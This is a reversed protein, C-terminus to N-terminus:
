SYLWYWLFDILWSIFLSRLYCDYWSLFLFELSKLFRGNSSFWKLLGLFSCILDFLSSCTCDLAPYVSPLSSCYMIVFLMKVGLTIWSSLSLSWDLLIPYFNFLIKCMIGFEDSIWCNFLSPSSVSNM